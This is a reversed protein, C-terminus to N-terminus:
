LGSITLGIQLSKMNAAVGDKFIGSLDYAGFLTFNGYGVRATAAL